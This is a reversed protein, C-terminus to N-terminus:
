STWLINRWEIDQSPSMTDSMASDKDDDEKFIHIGDQDVGIHYVAFLLLWPASVDDNRESNPRFIFEERNSPIGPIYNGM